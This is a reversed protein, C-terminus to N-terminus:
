KEDLEDRDKIAGEFMGEAPISEEVPFEFGV